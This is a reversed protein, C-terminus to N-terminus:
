PMLQASAWAGDARTYRLRDHLRGDGDAWFEMRHPHIAFGGWFPPRPVPKDAFRAAMEDVRAQLAATSALPASQRSAWAGLQSLRPRSAFYADAIADPVRSVSGRAHVQRAISKWHLTVAARPNTALALGKDSGFNTYFVLGQEASAHKLLVTRTTPWGAEDITALQMADPVRPEHAVALAYWDAFLDFPDDGYDFM